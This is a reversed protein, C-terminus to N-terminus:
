WAKTAFKGDIQAGFLLDVGEDDALATAIQTTKVGGMREVRGMQDEALAKLASSRERLARREMRKTM